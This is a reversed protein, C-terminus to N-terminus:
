FDLLGFNVAMAAEAEAEGIKTALMADFYPTLMHHQLQTSIQSILM